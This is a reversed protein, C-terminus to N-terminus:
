PSPTTRTPTWPPWDFHDYHGHSVVIGDLHPLDAASAVSRPEGPYYGPKESFWPDTLVTTGDFDLLVSTHVIRTMATTM